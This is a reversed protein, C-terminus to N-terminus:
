SEDLPPVNLKANSTYNHDAQSHTDLSIQPHLLNPMAKCCTRPIDLEDAEFQAGLKM